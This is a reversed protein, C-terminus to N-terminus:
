KAAAALDYAKASALNDFVAWAAIDYYLDEQTAVGNSAFLDTGKVGRGIMYLYIHNTYNFNPKFNNAKIIVEEWEGTAKASEAMPNIHEGVVNDNQDWVRCFFVDFPKSEKNNTRVLFKFYVQGGTLDIRPINYTNLYLADGENNFTFRAYTIGTGSDKLTEVNMAKNMYNYLNNAKQTRVFMPEVVETSEGEEPVIEIVPDLTETDGAPPNAIYANYAAREAETVPVKTLEPLTRTWAPIQPVLYVQASTDGLENQINVAAGLDTTSRFDKAHEYLGNGIGQIYTNGSYKAAADPTTTYSQVLEHVARDFINNKIEFNYYAHRRDSGTGTRLHRQNETDPRSSGFGYGARRLLNGEILFNNGARDYTSGEKADLFYEISYVCDTVVNNKIRMNDQRCDQDAHNTQPTIGADYCQYVYNNDIYLGDCAGYLEIGNGLRTPRESVYDDYRTITGGIWGIECNQITINNVGTNLSVGYFGSYKLCLNDIVVDNVGSLVKMCNNRTAFEISDFVSGPNGADCRFFLPGTAQAAFIEPGNYLSDTKHFFQLNGLQKYTFPKKNVDDRHYFNEGNFNCTVKEGFYGGEGDNLIIVGTDLFDERAYKWVLAGTATDEYVLTWKSPDAGNEPSANIFPKAGEGYASYTIGSEAYVSERFVDGRKLLVGDGYRVLENARAVTKVPTAETLGNNADNGMSSSVYVKKGTIKSYDSATARIEAIRQAELADLEAIKANSVSYGYVADEGLLAVLKQVPDEIARTWAGKSEEHYVTAEAINGFAWHTRDVDVFIKNVNKAVNTAATDRGRARNIVTVVEARTITNDPKFSFTGNGNDYGNVLGAKASATIVNYRPHSADVDTFASPKGADQMLGMNYVLEVFEARTIAQDPLFAGSYSKLYGLSEVYAIYKKGWHSALDTFATTKDAPVLADGGAVIRAVTTCAEARTMTNGPLFTGDTYGNMYATHEEFTPLEEYFTISSIYCVETELLDKYKIDGYPGIQFHNLMPMDPNARKELATFDFTATAWQGVVMAERATVTIGGGPITDKPSNVFTLKMKGPPTPMDLYYEISAYRIKTLDVGKVKSYSDLSVANAKELTTQHTTTPNPTIKAANKGSFTVNKEVTATKYDNTIASFLSSYDFSLIEVEDDEPKEVTASSDDDAKPTEQTPKDVPTETPTEVPASEEVAPLDTHFSINAIYCVDTKKLETYKTKGYPGIQFHNLMPMDPNARTELATFDFTATAWQGVVMKERATATIGGGPITDKPNNVMTFTMAEAAQPMDLYYEVSVYRIETLDVGKVKDYSDLSVANAKAVTTEHTTTPDPTIKVANKGEFNVNKEVVATKYANTIDRYIESYDFSLADTNEEDAIAPTIIITTALMMVALIASLIKHLKM